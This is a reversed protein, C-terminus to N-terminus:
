HLDGATPYYGPKATEMTHSFPSTFDDSVTHVPGTTATFQVDGENDCGPGSMHTMSFGNISTNAYHYGYGHDESDPSLQVMGFPTTAGPFLNVGGGPGAGTGILPNVSAAPSPTSPQAISACAVSIIGLLAASCKAFQVPRQM